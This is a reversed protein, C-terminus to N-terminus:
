ATAARIVNIGGALAVGDATEHEALTAAVATLAEDRQSPDITDLVARAIGTDTLYDLAEAANVGLCLEVRVPTVDIGIWGADTLVRRVTDADAQPFMGPGAGTAAAPLQGYRLLSAGPVLLWDNADLPQWTALCLRGGPRMATALNAFAAAPDDFFMTGFRSIAVDFSDAEFQHTQADAEQFSVPREGARRRALDLMPASLDVGVTVGPAVADAAAVTTAGCGCGIDLVAEGSQLAAAALLTDAVPALIHDRRDADAVWRHGSDGNWADRQVQNPTSM